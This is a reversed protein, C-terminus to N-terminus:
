EDSSRIKVLYNGFGNVEKPGPRALSYPMKSLTHM